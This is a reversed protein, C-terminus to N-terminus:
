STPSSSSITECRWTRAQRALSPPIEDASSRPVPGVDRRETDPSSTAGFSRATIANACSEVTRAIETRTGGAPAGCEGSEVWTAATVSPVPTTQSTRIEGLPPTPPRRSTAHVISCDSPPPM